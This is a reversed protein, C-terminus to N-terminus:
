HKKDPLENPNRFLGKGLYIGLKITEKEPFTHIGEKVVYDMLRQQYQNCDNMYKNSIKVLEGFRNQDGSEVGQNKLKYATAYVVESQVYYAIIPQIYDLLLIENVSTLGSAVIQNSIENYLEDGLLNYIIFDQCKVIIPKIYNDDMNDDILYNTKLKNTSIFQVM